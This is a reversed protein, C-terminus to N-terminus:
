KVVLTPISNNRGILRETTSGLFFSELRSHGKAGMIILDSNYEKGKELLYYAINNKDKRITIPEIEKRIGPLKEALFNEFAERANMIDKPSKRPENSFLSYDPEQYVNLVQLIVENPMWNKIALALQLARISHESFDFPVLIRELKPTAVEPVLLVNATTQRIINKANIQHRTEDKSKGVVVLNAESEKVQKVLEEIPSGERLLYRVAADKQPKWTVKIENVLQHRIEILQEKSRKWDSESYIKELPYGTIPNGLYPNMGPNYFPAVHLFDIQQFNFIRSLFNFYELFPIMSEDIRLGMVVKQFSALQNNTPGSSRNKKTEVKM